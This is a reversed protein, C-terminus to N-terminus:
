IVSANIEHEWIRYVIYGQATLDKNIFADRLKVDPRNHWYDGDAEICVNPEIFIDVQHYSGDSLRIPKHKHFEIGLQTLGSQLKLEISTDKFPLIINARSERIKQRVDERKAPNAEPHEFRYKKLGISIKQRQSEPAMYGKHAESLRKIQEPTFKKGRRYTNGRQALGLSRAYTKQKESQHKGLMTKRHEHTKYWEILSASRRKKAEVSQKPLNQKGKNWPTRGKMRRSHEPNPGTKIGKNWPTMGKKFETMISPRHGKRGPMIEGERHDGEAERRGEVAYGGNHQLASNNQQRSNGESHFNRTENKDCNYIASYTYLHIAEVTNDRYIAM